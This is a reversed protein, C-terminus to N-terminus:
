TVSLTADGTDSLAAISMMPGNGSGSGGSVGSGAKVPVEPLSEKTGTGPLERMSASPPVSVIVKLKLSVSALTQNKPLSTITSDGSLLLRVTTVPNSVKTNVSPVTFLM